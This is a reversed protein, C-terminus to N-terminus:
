HPPDVYHSDDEIANLRARRQAPTPPMQKPTPPKPQVPGQNVPKAASPSKTKSFAPASATRIEELRLGILLLKAGRTAQRAYDYGVINANLYSKEPTVVTYLDLSKVLEECKDLFAQREDNSGSKAMTVRCEFPMEVKNYSQFGGREIPYTPVRFDKNFDFDVFSDPVLVAVGAQTFVGWPLLALGPVGTTDGVTRQTPRQPARNPGLPPVGPADPVDILGLTALVDSM